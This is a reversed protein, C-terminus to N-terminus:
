HRETVYRVAGHATAHLVGARREWRLLEQQAGGPSWSSGTTVPAVLVGREPLLTALREPAFRLAFTFAVKLPPGDSPAGDVFHEALAVADGEILTSRRPRGEDLLAIVRAARAALVPDIEISTVRGRPGLFDLALAAGYGSGTGLELLFDDERLGLLSYTLVYAHPASVTAYGERDLTLPTDAASLAIDEPLVFRERPVTILSGLYPRFQDEQLFTGLRRTVEDPLGARARRAAVALEPDAAIARDLWAPVPEWRDARANAYRESFSALESEGPSSPRQDLALGHSSM